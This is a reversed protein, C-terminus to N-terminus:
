WVTKIVSIRFAHIQFETVKYKNQQAEEYLKKLHTWLNSFPVTPKTKDRDTKTWHYAHFLKAGVSPIKMFNSTQTNKSFQNYFGLKM